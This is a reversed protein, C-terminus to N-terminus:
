GTSAGPQVTAQVRKIVQEALDGPSGLGVTQDEKSADTPHRVVCQIESFHLQAFVIEYKAKKRIEAVMAEPLWKTPDTRTGEDDPGILVWSCKNEAAFEVMWGLMPDWNFRETNAQVGDLFIVTGPAAKTGKRESANWDFVEVTPKPPVFKKDTLRIWQVADATMVLGSAMAEIAAENGGVFVIDGPKISVLKDLQPILTQM